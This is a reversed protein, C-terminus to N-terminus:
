YFPSLMWTDQDVDSNFVLIVGKVLNLSYPLSIGCDFVASMGMVAGRPLAVCGEMMKKSATGLRQKKQSSKQEKQKM